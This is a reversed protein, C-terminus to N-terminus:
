MHINNELQSSNTLFITGKGRVARTCATLNNTILEGLNLIFTLLLRKVRGSIFSEVFSTNIHNNESNIICKIRTSYSSMIKYKSLCSFKERQIHFAYIPRM